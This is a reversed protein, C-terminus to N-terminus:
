VIAERSGKWATSAQFFLLLPYAVFGEGIGLLSSAFSSFAGRFVAVAAPMAKMRLVCALVFM